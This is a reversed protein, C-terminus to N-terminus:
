ALPPTATEEDDVPYSRTLARRDFSLMFAMVALAVALVAAIGAFIAVVKSEGWQQQTIAIFGWGFVLPYAADQRFAAFAGSALLGIIMFLVAWVRLSFPGGDWGGDQLWVMLTVLTLFSAWGLYISFPVEVMLIQFRSPTAEDRGSRQSIFSIILLAILLILIFVFAFTFSKWHWFAVWLINAVNALLFLPGIQRVRKNRRGGPMITYVVYVAMLAYIIVWIMFSWAAPQFPVPQNTAVAGSTLDNFPLWNALLTIGVAVLLGVLGTLPWYWASDREVWFRRSGDGGSSKTTVALPGDTASPVPEALSDALALDPDDEQWPDPEHELDIDDRRGPRNEM